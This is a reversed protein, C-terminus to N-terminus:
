RRGGGLMGDSWGESESEHDSDEVEESREWIAVLVISPRGSPGM